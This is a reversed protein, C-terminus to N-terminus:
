STRRKFVAHYGTVRYGRIDGKWENAVWAVCEWGAEGWSNLQNQIEEDPLEPKKLGLGTQWGTEANISVVKYEWTEM